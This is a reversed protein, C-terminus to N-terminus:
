NAESGSNSFYARRLNPLLAAMKEALKIAPINGASMAYYPMQKLQEYVVRAISERGYGVNVCWVGGSVTDLFERGRIDKITLGNGEVVVMPDQNEFVKHQMIHHWVYDRDMQVLQEAHVDITDTM